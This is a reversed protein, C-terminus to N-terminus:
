SLFGPEHLPTSQSGPITAICVFFMRPSLFGVAKPIVRGCVDSCVGVEMMSQMHTLKNVRLQM